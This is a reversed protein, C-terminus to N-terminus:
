RGGIMHVYILAEAIKSQQLARVRRLPSKAGYCVSVSHQLLPIERRQELTQIARTKTHEACGYSPGLTHLSQQRELAKNQRQISGREM